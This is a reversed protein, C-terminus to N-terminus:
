LVGERGKDGSASVVGNRQAPAEGVIVVLYRPGRGLMAAPVWARAGGVVLDKWGNGRVGLRVDWGTPRRVPAM